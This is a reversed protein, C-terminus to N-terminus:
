IIKTYTCFLSSRLPLFNAFLHKSWQNIGGGWVCVYYSGAKTHQNESFFWWLVRDPYKCIGVFACELNLLWHNVGVPDELCYEALRYITNATRCSRPLVIASTANVCTGNFTTSLSRCSMTSVIIVIYICMTCPLCQIGCWLLGLSVSQSSSTMICTTCWLLSEIFSSWVHNCKHLHGTHCEPFICKSHFCSM